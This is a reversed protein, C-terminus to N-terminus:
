ASGDAPISLCRVIHDPFCRDGAFTFSTTEPSEVERGLLDVQHQLRDLDGLISLGRAFGARSLNSEKIRQADLGPRFSRLKANVLAAGIYGYTWSHSPVLVRGEWVVKRYPLSRASYNEVRRIPTSLVFTM